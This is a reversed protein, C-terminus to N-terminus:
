ARWLGDIQKKRVLPALAAVGVALAVVTAVLQVKNFGNGLLDFAGIPALRSGFMDLEGFAFLLSTSELSTPTSIINKLGMVERKHTVLWRPEFDLVPSYRFLGEEQEAPTPDRAVPRRPDLVARPISLLANLSPLLCLLSRPTIGQRTSTSSLHSIPGPILFSQSLVHPPSPLEPSTPHLTSFNSSSALPGRDNPSPSEYLESITLQYGKPLLNISPDTASSDTPISLAPDSYFSYAFWNESFTAPIPKSTDINNHLITYISQGSIADLIYISATSTAASIAAIFVLNPNLYKYLVNRDGLVKGISAVPDHIPRTAVTSVTEGPMPAFDWVAVPKADKALKWGTIAGDTRQTVITTANGLKDSSIEGLSGDTNVPILLEAGSEVVVSLSTKLSGILGGPQHALINGTLIDFRLFEGNAARLLATHDLIEIEIVHWKQGRPLEVAKVQWIFRGKDNADSAALFGNETAIIALKRFGFGDKRLIQDRLSPKDGVFSGVIREPLQQIWAPLYQLDRAHRRVRHIYAGLINDHSEQALEQALSADEPVDAWAAAVVGALSETRLWVPDGNRVLEWDGSSLALASRVAFTSGGRAVVESAAHSVAQPDVLGGHSKPRVSWRELVGHSASSVLIVEFETNRTFYVNADLSSASFAGKGGLRPLDYSKTVSGASIDVHYIEAWHSKSTQYHILFHPQANLSRPGHVFVAEVMESDHIAIPLSTVHKSGLVNVKLAKFAKDTWVVIPAVTNAGLYLIQEQSSVESEASLTNQGIQKGSAVDLSTVKIKYGKLLASHLSIYYVQGTSASVGYPIDGSFPM